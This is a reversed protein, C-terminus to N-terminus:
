AVGAVICAKCRESSPGMQSAKEDRWARRVEELSAKRAKELEAKEAARADEAEKRKQEKEAKRVARRAAKEEAVKNAKEKEELEKVMELLQAFTLKSLDIPASMKSITTFTPLPFPSTSAFTSYSRYSRLHM